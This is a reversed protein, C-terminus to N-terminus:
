LDFFLGTEKEIAKLAIQKIENLVDSFDGGQIEELKDVLIRCRKYDIYDSDGPGFLADISKYIDKELFLEDLKVVDSESIEIFDSYTGELPLQDIDIGTSVLYIRYMTEM